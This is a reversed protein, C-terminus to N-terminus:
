WPSEGHQVMATIVATDILSRVRALLELKETNTATLPVAFAFTGLLTRTVKGDADLVPLTLKGTVKRTTASKTVLASGVSRGAESPNTRDVYTCLGGSVISQPYYIVAAAASNLLSLTTADAM